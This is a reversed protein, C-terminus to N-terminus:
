YTRIPSDSAYITEIGDYDSIMYYAEKVEIVELCSMGDSVYESGKEEILSILTPDERSVDHHEYEGLGLDKAAAESVCFGGYRTNIVVKTM